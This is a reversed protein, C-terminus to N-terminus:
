PSRKDIDIRTGFVNIKKAFLTDDSINAGKAYIINVSSGGVNKMGELVPISMQPDGSVAWTGLMNSKDNALPGILAITGSKKLPLTENNNKLLVFTHGAIDRAAKRRAASLVEQKMREESIYRYPDDFLGLKYKAELIRRCADDIQKQTVKGERLSKKLTTLFGEGVMDMDLGARLSMASVTQLDGVGHNIMENVSTYDSVVFGKFGWQNRLLDTLLWKNGTAPIGEIENFSSMVSGVGADVAAKYPPLYENYMRVRSMDTTNYDRGAESAGYLAFHKVCSMMTNNKSLDDGQYGKVMAKAIQSGLYPDEGAGEAIRGWRPDRAIDVMPSFTWCLGDATAEIAAERASHEILKMDWSASLGLPIPVTTKYGHIVDSGFILPIKLRSNDMCLKQAQKIKDVGIVGFLGGVKGQKIKNEVDTSVVSGTPIGSGPTILNLQGIKEDLTMKKMLADVYGKMRYSDSKADQAQMTAFQSLVFVAILLINRKM